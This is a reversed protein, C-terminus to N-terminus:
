SVSLYRALADKWTPMAIGTALLKQNSLACYQPRAAPLQVDAFRRVDFVPPVGLLRAAETAFELWTAQGTNVCHYLGVPPRGELLRRTAVAADPVFTPSVTRDAFVTPTRGARLAAVIAAVSGKPPVGPAEGFLSEVRLVYASPAELAFWEGLLKSVAYVSRPNPRDTEIMPASAAGDFVFDSSYHVLTAGCAAAARAMSRVALGNVALAEVPHEEAADVANYGTCNVVADPRAGTVAAMVAAPDTVDLAAHDFAVVEHHAACEGVVVAGLQGRAGIVVLRM